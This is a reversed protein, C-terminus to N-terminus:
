ADEPLKVYCLFWYSFDDACMCTCACVCVFGYLLIFGCVFCIQCDTKFFGGGGCGGFLLLLVYSVGSLFAKLHHHYLPRLHNQLLVTCHHHCDPDKLVVILPGIIKLLVTPMVKGGFDKLCACEYVAHM